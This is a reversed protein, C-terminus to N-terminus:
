EFEVLTADAAVLDGARCLIAKVRADGPARIPLEMKMAELLLITDGKKVMDGAAVQIKLVTAPMPATVAHASGSRARQKTPASRAATVHGGDWPDFSATMASQPNRIASQNTISIIPTITERDLFATDISANKFEDRALLGLLFPINTKVGGIAFSQLAMALRAIALPRSEATAIVKAIMPDYYVSIDSGEAVGSDIRVGPMRPERYQNLRGAQPLFGSSPDEAYVRAEIAHGRQSVSEQTWPLREGSAVLLQARVLDLGTVQETVPHEVQLRTNMELFYFQEDEVIFEITGANQYGVARAATVAADTMRARLEPTLVPSPSEEIVKQHRRQVSCEREFLHITHGHADGFVQVEIHRPRDLLREVYLTGDGFAAQAERRAAAIADVIEGDERVRRMGKGGGGASAKILVPLGVRAVAARLGADSQDTPTEGPVVPVGAASVIRRAEIKSGMKEIADPTPGVFVLGAEVCARAFAANESLFGYGPHVADAGASKAAALLRPIKLYSEIASAPGIAIARDAARVHVADADAESYVAVSEIGMERCAHAIRVAIEGRNAILM